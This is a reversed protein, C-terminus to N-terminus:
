PHDSAIAAAKLPVARALNQPAIAIQWGIKGASVFIEPLAAAREELLTPFLKKMGVPSCGGHVYGTLPLLEKAPIMEVSKEGVAAAARRLDLEASVPVIFVFHKGSRGATVLTKCVADPDEGLTRAVDLGAVAGSDAYCILRYPIKKQDLLRCVNTKEEKKM